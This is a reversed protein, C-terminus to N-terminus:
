KKVKLVVFGATGRKVLFSAADGPKTKGFEAKMESV